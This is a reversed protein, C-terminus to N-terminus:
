AIAKRVRAFPTSWDDPNDQRYTKITPYWATSRWWRWDMLHPLVLHVSPHGMAGALHAAATDVTVIHDMIAIRDAVDAFDCPEHLPVVDHDTPGPQLACFQADIGLLERFLPLTLEKRSRGSWAIGIRGSVPAFRRKIYPDRPITEVTQNLARMVGFFPLRYDFGSIDEVRERTKVGFEWMLRMLSPDVVMEFECRRQMEPLYRMAMIGDGAGLEHYVIVKGPEGRWLPLVQLRDIDDRVPGSSRWSFLKWGIESEPLGREYDGLSLMATSRNWRAIMNDPAIELVTNYHAIAEHLRSQKQHEIGAFLHALQGSRLATM